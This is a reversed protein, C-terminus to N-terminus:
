WDAFAKELDDATDGTFDQDIASVDDGRWNTETDEAHPIDSLM